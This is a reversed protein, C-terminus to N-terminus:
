PPASGGCSRAGYVVEGNVSLERAMMLLMLTLLLVAALVAAVAVASASAVAVAALAAVAAEVVAVGGGREGCSPPMLDTSTRPFVPVYMATLRPSVRTPVSIEHVM